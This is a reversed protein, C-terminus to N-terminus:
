LPFMKRIYYTNLGLILVGKLGTIIRKSSIKKNNKRLCITKDFSKRMGFLLCM